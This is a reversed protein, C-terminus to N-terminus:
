DDDVEEHLERALEEVLDRQKKNLKKPLEVGVTVLLDGVPHKGAAPVGRGKVRMVTGPQTGAPVKLTVSEDLTPVEVTTGLIAASMKVSVTTTLNRGKMAFRTDPLVHVDIYLDGAPGGNAGPFGKGKLRIRQKDVVGAPIRVNVTRPAGNGSLQISTTQGMVADRFAIKLQAEIDGGRQQRQRRPGGFLGGFIDGLDNVDGFDGFDVNSYQQGGRPGGGFGGGVPGMKRVQDYEKRKEPDGLVDYAASVDKFQEEKGPNTDPHLEKALKRYARTIEKDTASEAIGLVKYFDKEFWDREAAM